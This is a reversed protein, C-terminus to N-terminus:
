ACDRAPHPGAGRPQRRRASGAAWGADHVCAGANALRCDRASAFARRRPHQCRHPHHRCCAAHRGPLYHALARSVDLAVARDARELAASLDQRQFALLAQRECIAASAPAMAAAQALLRTAEEHHAVHTLFDGLLLLADWAPAREVPDGNAPVPAPLRADFFREGNVYDRIRRELSAQDGFAEIAADAPAGGARAARFVGDAHAAHRGGDGLKLYHVLAWAQAYFAASTERDRVCKAGRTASLLTSLPLWPQTRLVHLHGAHPLGFVAPSEDFRGAAFFEALGENLWLPAAPINAEVLLHVYEHTAVGDASDARHAASRSVRSELGAVMLGAPHMADDLSWEAPLLSRLGARTAPAIVIVSKADTRATPWLRAFVARLREFRRVLRAAHGASADTVVTFHPGRAAIWPDAGPTEAWASMALALVLALGGAVIRAM